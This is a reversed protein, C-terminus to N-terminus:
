LHHMFIEFFNPRRHRGSFKVSKEGGGEGRRAAFLKEGRHMQFSNEGGPLDGEEGGGFKWNWGTGM